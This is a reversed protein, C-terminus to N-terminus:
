AQAPVQQINTATGVTVSFVSCDAEATDNKQSQEWFSFKTDTKVKMQPSCLISGTIKGTWGELKLLM